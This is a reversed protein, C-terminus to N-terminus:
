NWDDVSSFDLFDIEHLGGRDIDPYDLRNRRGTADPNLPLILPQDLVLVPLTVTQFRVDIVGFDPEDGPELYMLLKEGGYLHEAPARCPQIRFRLVSADQPM